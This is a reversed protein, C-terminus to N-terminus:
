KKVGYVSALCLIREAWKGHCKQENMRNGNSSREVGVLEPKWDLLRKADEYDEETVRMSDFIVPLQSPHIATKGIFGNAKDLELEKKLGDLWATDRRNDYYEWVPGSVVYDRSFVNLIDTLIDRVVGIQYVNQRVSRRAGFLNCFDNGGVRINLVYEKVSDLMEKLRYLARRRTELDAIQESELIPMFFLPSEGPRNVERFFDLYEQANTLDFKPLIYGTVAGEDEGLFLHVHRLHEPTRVRVFLLPCDVSASKRFKCLTTKLTQEAVDLASDRIADELCFAISTVDKIAHAEIKEFMDQRTSPFYLLGGVRYPLLEEESMIM